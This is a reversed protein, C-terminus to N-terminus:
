VKQKHGMLMGYIRGAVRRPTDKGKVSVWEIRKDKRFWTLQRKAYLRTNQKIKEKVESLSYMGDFYGKLEKLGIAYSATKSIKQELLMEAEAIIGRSFMENVRRNIQAYLESRPMDLCLIRIRYKDALGRRRKQFYSIPKGKIFFVELARIIRRKDHPHIKLAAEPDVEKLKGYLYGSGRVQGQRYLRKRLGEDAPCHPFIGDILISMYLGAGGVCLPVKGKKIVEKIKKVAQRRYCSVDYEKDIPVVNILHHPLSDRLLLSPKSTLIDMRRYVQMSDCSVIEANIKKALFFATETKGSATPGVLFVIEKKV